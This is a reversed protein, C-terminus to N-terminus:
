VAYGGRRSSGDAGPFPSKCIIVENPDKQRYIPGKIYILACKRKGWSFIAVVTHVRPSNKFIIPNIINDYRTDHRVLYINPYFPSDCILAMCNEPM